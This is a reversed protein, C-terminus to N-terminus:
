TWKRDKVRRNLPRQKTCCVQLANLAQHTAGVQLVRRPRDVVFVLNFQASFLCYLYLFPLAIAALTTEVCDHATICGVTLHLAALEIALSVAVASFAIWRIRPGWFVVAAPCLGLLLYFIVSDATRSTPEAARIYLAGLILGCVISYGIIGPVVVVSKGRM